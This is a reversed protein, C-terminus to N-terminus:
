WFPEMGMCAMPLMDVGEPPPDAKLKIPPLLKKAAHHRAKFHGQSPDKPFKKSFSVDLYIWIYATTTKCHKLMHCKRLRFPCELCVQNTTQFM